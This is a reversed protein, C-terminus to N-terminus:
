GVWPIIKLAMKVGLWHVYFIGFGTLLLLGYDIPIWANVYSALGYVSDAELGAVDPIMAFVYVFLSHSWDTLLGNFYHFLWIGGQTIAKWLAELWVKPDAWDWWGEGLLVLLGGDGVRM